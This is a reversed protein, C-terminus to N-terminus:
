QWPPVTKKEWHYEELIRIVKRASFQLKQDEILLSAIKNKSMSHVVKRHENLLKVYAGRVVREDHQANAQRKKISRTTRDISKVKFFSAVIMASVESLVKYLSYDMQAEIFPMRDGYKALYAYYMLLSALHMHLEILESPPVYNKSLFAKFIKIQEDEDFDPRSKKTITAIKVNTKKLIPGDISSNIGYSVYEEEKRQILVRMIDDYSCLTSMIYSIKEDRLQKVQSQKKALQAEQKLLFLQLKKYM